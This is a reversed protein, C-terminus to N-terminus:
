VIEAYERGRPRGPRPFLFYRGWAIFMGLTTPMLVIPVFSVIGLRDALSFVAFSWAYICACMGIWAAIVIVLSFHQSKQRQWVFEQPQVETVECRYESQERHWPRASQPGLPMCLDPTMAVRAKTDSRVYLTECFCKDRDSLPAYTITDLNYRAYQDGEKTERRLYVTAVKFPDDAYVCNLYAVHFCAASRGDELTGGKTIPIMSLTIKLGSSTVSHPSSSQLDRVPVIGGSSAFDTPSDALLGHLDGCDADPKSWAFLSQDDSDQMIVQQLRTFANRAGEGYLLPMNVNFLGLLCYAIDEPRTTVRSSAWSMKQAISFKGVAHCALAREQIGTIQSLLRRQESKTCIFSWDNAYFEVERSALLEQLTWGRSFWRVNAASWKHMSLGPPVDELYTFCLEAEQYWRYMSNISESLEASSTKDICCTDVWFYELGKKRTQVGCSQLKQYGTKKQGTGEVLDSHFVESDNAGWTHSLIAYPPVDNGVFEVLSFEDGNDNDLRLLRMSARSNQLTVGTCACTVILQIVARRLCGQFNYSRDQFLLQWLRRRRWRIGLRGLWIVIGCRQPATWVDHSLTLTKPEASPRNARGKPTTWPHM